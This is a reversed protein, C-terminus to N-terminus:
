VHDLVLLERACIKVYSFTVLPHLKYLVIFCTFTPVRHIVYLNLLFVYSLIHM